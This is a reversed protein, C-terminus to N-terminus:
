SPPPPSFAAGPGNMGGAEPMGSDMGPMGGPYGGPMGPMGGQAGGAPAAGPSQVAEGTPFIYVVLSATAEVEGDRGALSCKLDEVSVVLPASNWDKAWQMVREFRGTVTMAGLRWAIIDRPIDGPRTSPAPATFATTLTVGRRRARAQGFREMTTVVRRPLELWRPMTTQLVTQDTGDGLNIEQSRPLKKGAEMSALKREKGTRRVRAAALKEEAQKVQTWNFNQNDVSVTASEAQQVQAALAVNADKMPKLIGFYMGVGVLIMVVFGFIYVHVQTIKSANM